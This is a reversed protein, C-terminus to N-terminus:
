GARQKQADADFASRHRSDILWEAVLLNPVWCLWALLPYFDAFAMGGALFLGLYIRLTVAAFALSFNRMMWRRHGRIDRRRIAAYAMGGSVLWSLALLTFGARAALGGFAFQAMYLGASGGVLVGILLYARGSWRHLSAYNQRVRASFQVPGLALAAIAAFVHTYIGIAHAQFNGQMDPHVLSGLPFFGYAVAAYAAVGVALVGLAIYGLIRM